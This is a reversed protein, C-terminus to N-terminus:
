CTESSELQEFLDRISDENFGRNDTREIFEFMVGSNVDRKAFVQTMGPGEILNTEFEVGRARLERMVDAVSDVEIAVHQVGPGFADIFRAVQSQRETGQVLVISFDGSAFEASIMGTTKGYIARRERLEMGLTDRYFRIAAELDPVAIAIHDLRIARRGLLSMPNALMPQASARQAAARRAPMREAVAEASLEVIKLRENKM